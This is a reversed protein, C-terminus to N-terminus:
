WGHALAILALTVTFAGGIRTAIQAFPMMQMRNAATLIAVDGSSGQGSHCGNVIAAEIPYLNVWRGVVFGTAMLTAVTCAITLLNRWALAAVLTDWPMFTLGVAFLMPYTLATNTFKYVFKSGQQLEPSAAQALKMAVAIFLMGVPAPLGVLSHFLLGLLYLSVVSIGAAAVQGIDVASLAAAEEAKGALEDTAGPQLRGEGTLHPYRKGMTNLLGALAVATLSGFMVPPIVRAFEAGQASNMIESYGISLPIAGEGIGGAMIPVVIYYFTDKAGLGLLAGVSTGVVAAVVSGAALPVFIKVFGQILVTRDMSMISGVTILAIFLYLVKTSNAFNAVYTELQMPLLGYHALCAPVFTTFIIAGGIHKVVPIRKGIEACFCGGVALVCIAVSIESPLKGQAMFAGIVGVLMVFVPLPIIGIRRDMLRWWGHPWFKESPVAPPTIRNPAAM